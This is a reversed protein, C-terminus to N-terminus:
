KSVKKVYTKGIEKKKDNQLTYAKYTNKMLELVTLQGVGGPVPTVYSAKNIVDDYDVDGHLKGDEGKVTSVDIIIAGEKIMESNIFKDKSGAATVIIDANKTYTKLDKTKSHCMTPTANYELLMHFLPIGVLKSRGIITINKGELNDLGICNDLINIIGEATCPRLGEEKSVIKGMNYTTLGDVDKEPNISNIVLDEDLHKPLPLQVMIGNVSNDNNFVDILGLIQNTPVDNDLLIHQIDLGVEIGAKMKNRVYVDSASDGEVQIIRLSVNKGEVKNKLEELGDAKLKRCDVNKM